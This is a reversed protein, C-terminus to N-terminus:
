PPFFNCFDLFCHQSFYVTLMVFVFYRLAEYEVRDASAVRGRCTNGAAVGGVGQLVASLVARSMLFRDRFQLSFTLDSSWGVTILRRDEDDRWASEERVLTM